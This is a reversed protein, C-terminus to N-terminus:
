RYLGTYIYICIYIYVYICVCVIKRSYWAIHRVLLMPEIQWNRHTGDWHIAFIIKPVMTWHYPISNWYKSVLGGMHDWIASNLSRYKKYEGYILCRPFDGIEFCNRQYELLLRPNGMAMNSSQLARHFRFGSAQTIMASAFSGLLYSKDKQLSWFTNPTEGLILSKNGMTGLHELVYSHFSHGMVLGFVTINWALSNCTVM